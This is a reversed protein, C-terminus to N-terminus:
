LDQPRGKLLRAEEPQSSSCYATCSSMDALQTQRNEPCPCRTFNSGNESQSVRTGQHVWHWNSLKCSITLSNCLNRASQQSTQRTHRYCLTCFRSEDLRTRGFAFAEQGSSRAETSPANSDPVCMLGARRTQQPNETATETSSCDSLVFSRVCAKFCAPNYRCEQNAGAQVHLWLDAM